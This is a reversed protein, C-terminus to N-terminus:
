VALSNNWLFLFITQMAEDFWNRRQDFWTIYCFFKFLIRNLKLLRKMSQFKCVSVTIKRCKDCFLYTWVDQSYFVIVWWFFFFFSLFLSLFWECVSLPLAYISMDTNCCLSEFNVLTKSKRSVQNSLLLFVNIRSAM